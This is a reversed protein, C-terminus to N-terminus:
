LDLRRIEKMSTVALEALSARKSHPNFQTSWKAEIDPVHVVRRERLALGSIGEAAPIPYERRAADIWERNTNWRAALRLQDGTLRLLWLAWFRERSKPRM